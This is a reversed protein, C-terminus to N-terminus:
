AIYYKAKYEEYMKTFEEVGYALNKLSGGMLEVGYLFLALGAILGLISFIDMHVESKGIIM